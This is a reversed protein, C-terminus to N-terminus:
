HAEQLCSAVTSVFVPVCVSRAAKKDLKNVVHVSTSWLALHFGGELKNLRSEARGVLRNTGTSSCWMGLLSCPWSVTGGM